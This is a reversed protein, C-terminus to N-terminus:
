DHCRELILSINNGGFAFSNSMAYHLPKAATAAGLGNLTALEPDIVGDWLASPLKGDDRM